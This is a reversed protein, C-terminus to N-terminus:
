RCRSTSTAQTSSRSYVPDTFIASACILGVTPSKAPFVRFIRSNASRAALARRRDPSREPARPRRSDARRGAPFSLRKQCRARLLAPRSTRTSQLLRVTRRDEAAAHHRDSARVFALMHAVDGHQHLRSPTLADLLLHQQREVVDEVLLAVKSGAAVCDSVVHRSRRPSAGSAIVM